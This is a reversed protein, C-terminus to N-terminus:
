EPEADFRGRVILVPVPSHRLIYEADSGMLMRRFGRRGHTGCVILDAPWSVAHEVICEGAEAGIAEILRSDAPIDAGRVATISDHLISEGNGRLQDVLEQAAPASLSPSVWPLKHMVHIVRIEAELSKALKIAEDLGLRATHSGDVPVLIHKYM